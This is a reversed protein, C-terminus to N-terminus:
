VSRSLIVISYTKTAELVLKDTIVFRVGIGQLAYPQSIEQPRAQAIRAVEALEGQGTEHHHPLRQPRGRGEVRLRVPAGGEVSDGM